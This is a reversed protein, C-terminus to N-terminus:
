GQEREARLPFWGSAEGAEGDPRGPRGGEGSHPSTIKKGHKGSM